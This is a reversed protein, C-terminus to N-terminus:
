QVFLFIHHCAIWQAAFLACILAQFRYNLAETEKEDMKIKHYNKKKEEYKWIALCKGFEGVMRHPLM